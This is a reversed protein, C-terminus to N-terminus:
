IRLDLHSRLPKSVSVCDRSGSPCRPLVAKRQHRAIGAHGQTWPRHGHNLRSCLEIQRHAVQGCCLSPPDDAHADQRRKAGAPDCVAQEPRDSRKAGCRHLHGVAIPRCSGCHETVVFEAVQCAGEVCHYWRELLPSAHLIIKPQCIFNLSLRLLLRILEPGSSDNSMASSRMRSTRSDAPSPIMPTFRSPLTVKTLGAAQRISPYEASSNM